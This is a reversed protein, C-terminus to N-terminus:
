ISVGRFFYRWDWIEIEFNDGKFSWSMFEVPIEDYDKM